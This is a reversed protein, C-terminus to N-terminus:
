HHLLYGLLPAGRDVVHCAMGAHRRRGDGLYQGADGRHLRFVRLADEIGNLKQAVADVREGGVHAPGLAADDAGDHRLEFALEEALHDALEFTKGLLAAIRKDGGGATFRFLALLFDKGAHM